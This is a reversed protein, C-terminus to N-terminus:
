KTASSASWRASRGTSFRVTVSRSEQARSCRRAAPSPFGPPRPRRAYTRRLFVAPSDRRRRGRKGRGSENGVGACRRAGVEGVVLAGSAAGPPPLGPGGPPPFAPPLPPAAFSRRRPTRRRLGVRGKGSENGAGAYGDRGWRGSRRPAPREGEDGSARRGAGPPRHPGAPSRGAASPAAPPRPRPRVSSPAAPTRRRRSPVPPHDGPRKPLDSPRLRLTVRGPNPAPSSPPAGASSGGAERGAGNNASGAGPENGGGGARLAFRLRRALLGGPTKPPGPEPAASPPRSRPAPRGTGARLIRPLLAAVWPIRSQRGRQEGGGDGGRGARRTGSSAGAM